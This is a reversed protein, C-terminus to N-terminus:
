MPNGGESRSVLRFRSEQRFTLEGLGLRDPVAQYGRAVYEASHGLARRGGQTRATRTAAQSRSHELRKNAVWSMFDASMQFDSQNALYGNKRYEKVRRPRVWFLLWSMGDGLVEKLNGWPGLDWPNGEYASFIFDPNDRSGVAIAFLHSKKLGEEPEIRNRLALFWWKKGVNVGSLYAVLFTALVSMPAHLTSMTHQRHAMAFISLALVAVADISMFLITLLYAKTSDLYVIVRIWYCYHDYVPLHFPALARGMEVDAEKKSCHYVRDGLEETGRLCPHEVSHRYRCYRPRRGRWSHQTDANWRNIFRLSTQMVARRPAGGHERIWQNSLLVAYAWCLLWWLRVWGLGVFIFVAGVKNGLPPASGPSTLGFYDVDAPLAWM